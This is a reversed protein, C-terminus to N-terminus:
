EGDGGARLRRRASRGVARNALTVLIVSIIFVISGVANIRPSVQGQLMALLRVPLTENIGSVFWAIMYEDFSVAASIALAAFIAPRCFPVVVQFLARWESAGLNWAAAELDRDLDALRMRILAMAFPAAIVVHGIVIGPLAGSLGIESLFALMALGLIIVPVTPPLTVLAMYLTKGRFRYRYDVYAASFGAFSALAATAVAVILSNALGRGITPDIMIARYWTLTFGSWPLGPFRDLNFSFVIISVIPALIFAFTALVSAGLLGGIARESAM